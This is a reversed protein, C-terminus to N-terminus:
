LIKDKLPKNFNDVIVEGNSTEVEIISSHSSNKFIEKEEKKRFNSISIFTGLISGIVVADGVEDTKRRNYSFPLGTTLV